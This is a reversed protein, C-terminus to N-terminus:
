FNIYCAYFLMGTVKWGRFRRLTNCNDRRLISVEILAARKGGLQVMNNTKDLLKQLVTQRSNAVVVSETWAQEFEM